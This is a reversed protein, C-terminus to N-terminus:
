NGLRASATLGRAGDTYRGDRDPQAGGVAIDVTGTIPRRQGHEDVLTLAEPPLTLSVTRREGPALPVRAFAALWLRPAYAPPTRPVVYVQMVEDGARAGSNQVEISITRWDPAVRLNAYGFTTYSLGDGFRYLPAQTLYRYTRGRMAYDAFPPLDAVSRYFTIPLRGGPNVEGFLVDAVADGGEEGPYWAELL